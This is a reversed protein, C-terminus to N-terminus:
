TPRDTGGGTGVTGTGTGGPCLANPLSFYWGWGEGYRTGYGWSTEAADQGERTGHTVAHTAIYVPAKGDWGLAVLDFEAAYGSVKDLRGSNHMMQGPEGHLGGPALAVDIHAETLTWGKGVIRVRLTGDAITADVYGTEIHQGGYLVTTGVEPCAKLAPKGDPREDDKEAQSGTGRAAMNEDEGSSFPSQCGLLSLALAVAGIPRPKLFLKM